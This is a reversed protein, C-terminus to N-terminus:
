QKMDKLKEHLRPGLGKTFFFRHATLAVPTTLDVVNKNNKEKSSQKRESQDVRAPYRQWSLHIM